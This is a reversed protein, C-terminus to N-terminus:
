AIIDMMWSYLERNVEAPAAVQLWHGQYFERITANTCYQTTTAIGQVSRSIYDYHAAGFFVPVKITYKELPVLKDDDANTGDVIAKHWCLPAALGDKAFANHWVDKDQKAICSLTVTRKDAELWAKLAGIPAVETVWLKPDRPFIASFFSEMHTEIIENANEEAFFVSHGCLEYGCMKKTSWITHEITSTPKPVCYPVALFAFGLFRESYFNALRSVIKSGLGHGIVITREAGVVNMLELIDKCLLNARYADPETPKSTGGFGLMDPILLSFGQEHFYATQHRWIHSTTPFGHLFILTTSSIEIDHDVNSDPAYYYYRYVFGRSTTFSNYLASDM